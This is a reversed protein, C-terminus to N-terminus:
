EELTRFTSHSPKIVSMDVLRKEIDPRIGVFLIKAGRSELLREAEELAFAGSQDVIPVNTFRLIIYRVNKASQMVAQFNKVEGFFLPANFTYTYVASRVDEQLHRTVEFLQELRDLHGHESLKADSLGKVFLACALCVGALVAIILDVF